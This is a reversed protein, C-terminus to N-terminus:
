DGDPGELPPRRLPPTRCPRSARRQHLLQAPPQPHLREPFFARCPLHLDGEHRRPPLPRRWPRRTLEAPSPLRLHRPCAGALLIPPRRAPADARSTTSVVVTIRTFLHPCPRPHPIFILIVHSSFLSPFFSPSSFPL